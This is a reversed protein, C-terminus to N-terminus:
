IQATSHGTERTLAQVTAEQGDHLADIIAIGANTLM